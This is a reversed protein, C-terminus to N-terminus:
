SLFITGLKIVTRCRQNPLEFSPRSKKAFHLSVCPHRHDPEAGTHRGATFRVWPRTFEPLGREFAIRLSQHRLLCRPPTGLRDPPWRNADTLGQGGARPWGSHAKPRGVTNCLRRKASLNLAFTRVPVRRTQRLTFLSQSAHVGSGQRFAATGSGRHPASAGNRCPKAIRWADVCPPESSCRLRARVRESLAAKGGRGANARPPASREADDCVPVAQAGSWRRM